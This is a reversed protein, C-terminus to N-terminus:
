RSPRSQMERRAVKRAVWGCVLRQKKQSEGWTEDPLVRCSTEAALRKLAECGARDIRNSHLSLEKLEPPASARIADAIAIAGVDSIENDGLRIEKVQELAGSAIVAAFAAAQEDGWGLSVYFLQKARGFHYVFHKRYLNVVMPRDVTGNTFKQTEILASFAEPTLPAPRVGGTTAEDRMAVYCSFDTIQALDWSLYVSKCLCAFATETTCWGRDKYDATNAGEPLEYASPYDPPMRTSRLVITFQHGYLMPTGELGQRFLRQEEESRWVGNAPDPHQHLSGYDWFVGIRPFYYPADNLMTKLVKALLQITYGRSDPQFPQLWPYSLAVIPLCLSHDAVCAAKLEELPVFAAPEDRELQQRSKILGGNAAHKVIWDADLLAIAGSVLLPELDSGGFEEWAQLAKPKKPLHSSRDILLPPPSDAEETTQAPPLETMEAPPSNAEAAQTDIVTMEALAVIEQRAAEPLTALADRTEESLNSGAGGM